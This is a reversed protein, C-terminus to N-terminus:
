RVSNKQGQHQCATQKALTAVAVAATGLRYAGLERRASSDRDAESSKKPNKFQGGVKGSRKNVGAVDKRGCPWDADDRGSTGRLQKVDPLWLESGPLEVREGAAASSWGM